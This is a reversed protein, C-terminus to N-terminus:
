ENDKRTIYELGQLQGLLDHVTGQLHGPKNEWDLLAMKLVEVELANLMLPKNKKMDM